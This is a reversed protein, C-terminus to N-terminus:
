ASAEAPEIRIRCSPSEDREVAVIWREVGLGERDDVDLWKAVEDRIGKARATANDGDWPKGRRGQVLTITVRVPLPPPDRKLDLLARAVENKVSMKRRITERRTRESNASDAHERLAVVLEIARATDWPARAAGGTAKRHRQIISAVTSPHWKAGRRPARKRGLEAGIARLSKGERALAVAEGVAEAEADDTVIPARPDDPGRAGRKQGYPLAGLQVGRERLYALGMRVREATNERELQALAGLIALIARGHPSVTDIKEVVAHLAFAGRESFREEVLSLLDRLSRSLRDLKYVVIAGAEGADLAALARSLAPRELTKASYGDDVEVRLLELGNLSCYEKIKQEQAALSVGDQAQQDTSVRCYGIAARSKPEASTKPARRKMPGMM